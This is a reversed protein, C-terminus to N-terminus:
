RWCGSGVVVRRQQAYGGQRPIGCRPHCMAAGRLPEGHDFRGGAAHAATPLLPRLSPLFVAAPFCLPSSAPLRSSLSSTVCRLPPFVSILPLLFSPAPPPLDYLNRRLPMPLSPVFRQRMLYKFGSGNFYSLRCKKAHWRYRQYRSDPRNNRECAYLPRVYPCHGKEGARATYRPVGTGKPARLWFGVSYDCKGARTAHYPSLLLPPPLSPSLFHPSPSLTPPFMPPGLPPLFPPFFRVSPPIPSPLFPSPFPPLSPLKTVIMSARKRRHTRSPSTLLLFRSLRPFRPCLCRSRLRYERPWPNPALPAALPALSILLGALLVLPFLSLFPRHTARRTPQRLLACSPLASPASRLLIPLSRRLSPPLLPGCTVTPRSPQRPPRHLFSPSSSRHQSRRTRYVALMPPMVVIRHKTAAIKHELMIREVKSEHREAMMKFVYDSSQESSDMRVPGIKVSIYRGTASQRTVVQLEPVDKSLVSQVALVMAVAFEDGGSGIATFDRLSPYTNVKKDLELWDDGYESATGGMVVNTTRAQRGAMRSVESVAKLLVDQPPSGELSGEESESESANM